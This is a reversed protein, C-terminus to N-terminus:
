SRRMWWLCDQNLLGFHVPWKYKNMGYGRNLCRSLIQDQTGVIICDASPDRDWDTSVAGGMLKYVTITEESKKVWEEIVGYIQDVLTRMPLIYVLRRPTQEPYHKRRWIWALVIAATKGLGTAVDIVTPLEEKALRTQYQYPPNGTITKFWDEFNPETM